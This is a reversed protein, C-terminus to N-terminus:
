IRRRVQSPEKFRRSELEVESRIGPRGDRFRRVGWRWHVGETGIDFCPFTMVFLSFNVFNVFTPKSFPPAYHFQKFNRKVLILILERGKWGCKPLYLLESVNTRDNCNFKVSLGGLAVAKSEDSFFWAKWISCPRHSPADHNLQAIGLSQIVNFTKIEPPTEVSAPLWWCDPRRESSFLKVFRDKLKADLNSDYFLCKRFSCPLRPSSPVKSAIKSIYSTHIPTTRLFNHFSRFLTSLRCFQHTVVSVLRDM